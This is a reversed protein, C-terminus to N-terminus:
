LGTGQMIKLFPAFNCWDASSAPDVSPTFSGNRKAPRPPLGQASNVESVHDHHPTLVNFHLMMATDMQLTLSAVNLCVGRLLLPLISTQPAASPHELLGSRIPVHSHPLRVTSRLEKCVGFLNGIEQHRLTCIVKLQVAAPAAMLRLM